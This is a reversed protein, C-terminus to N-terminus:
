DLEAGIQRPANTAGTTSGSGFFSGMLNQLMDGQGRPQINFFILGIKDLAKDLCGADNIANKYRLRLRRYLDQNGRQCAKILLEFFNLLPLESFIFIEDGSSSSVKQSNSIRGSELLREIFINLSKAADRINGASLYGLVARSIYYPAMPLDFDDSFWEFLLNALVTASEKTGM